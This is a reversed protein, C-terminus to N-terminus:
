GQRQRWENAEHELAAAWLAAEPFSSDLPQARLVLRALDRIGVESTKAAAAVFTARRVSWHSYKGLCHIAAYKVPCGCFYCHRNAVELLGARLRSWSRMAVLVEWSHGCRLAARLVHSTSDQICGYPVKSKHRALVPLRLAACRDDLAQRVVQHRPIDQSTRLTSAFVGASARASHESKLVGQPPSRFHKVQTQNHM